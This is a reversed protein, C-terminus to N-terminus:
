LRGKIPTGEEQNKEEEEPRAINKLVEVAASNQHEHALDLATKNQGNRNYLKAGHYVLREIIEPNRNYQVAIMLADEQNYVRKDIDAGLEVLVDIIETSSSYGAAGTLPTGKFVGDSENIDAGKEVLAEIIRPDKASMAAWMLVPGNRNGPELAEQPVESVSALTAAEWYERTSYKRYPNSLKLFLALLIVGVLVWLYVPKVSGM